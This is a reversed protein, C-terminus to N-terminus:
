VAPVQILWLTPVISSLLIGTWGLTFSKLEVTDPFTFFPDNLEPFSGETRDGGSHGAHHLSGETVTASPSITASALGAAVSVPATCQRHLDNALGQGAVFLVSPVPLTSVLLFEASQGRGYELEGQSEHCGLRKQFHRFWLARLLATTTTVIM